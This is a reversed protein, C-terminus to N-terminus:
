HGTLVAQAERVQHSTAWSLTLEPLSQWGTADGDDLSVHYDAHFTVGLQITYADQAGNVGLSSWQYPHQVSSPHNSDVYPQGLGDSCDGRDPCSVQQSGGDGFDWAFQEPWMRVEILFTTAETACSQQVAPRRDAALAIAGSADHAVSQQCTEYEAV